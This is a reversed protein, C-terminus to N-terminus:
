RMRWCRSIRICISYGGADRAVMDFSQAQVGWRALLYSLSVGRWRATGIASGGVPNGICVLTTTEEVAPLALLEDYSLTEANDVLGSISLSWNATDIPLEPAGIDVQYFADNDTILSWDILNSAPQLDTEPNTEDVVLNVGHPEESSCAVMWSPMAAAGAVAATYHIFDRRSLPRPRRKRAM